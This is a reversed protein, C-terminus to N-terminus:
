LLILSTLSAVGFSWGTDSVKSPLRPYEKNAGTPYSTLKQLIEREGAETLDVDDVEVGYIEAVEITLEKESMFM